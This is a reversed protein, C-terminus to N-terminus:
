FGVLDVTATCFVNQMNAPVSLGTLIFQGEVGRHDVELRVADWLKPTIQWEDILRPTKGALLISPNIDALSINQNVDEPNAM